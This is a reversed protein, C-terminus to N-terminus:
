DFVDILESYSRLEKDVTLLRLPESIAQAILARDFPDRHINPLGAVVVAHKATFPLEQYGSNIIASTLDDVDAELKGLKAKIAIEWITISSVYVQEAALILSRAVESLQPDDNVCWLYIHTDLLLRM